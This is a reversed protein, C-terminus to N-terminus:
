GGDRPCRPVSRSKACEAPPFTGAKYGFVSADGCQASPFDVSSSAGVLEHTTRDYVYSGGAPLTGVGWTIVVLNCAEYDEVRNYDPVSDPM